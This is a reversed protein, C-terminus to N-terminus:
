PRPPVKMGRDITAATTLTGAVATAVFSAGALKATAWFEQDSISPDSSLFSFEAYLFAGISAATVLSGAWIVATDFRYRWIGDREAENARYLETYRNIINHQPTCM